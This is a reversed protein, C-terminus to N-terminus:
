SAGSKRRHIRSKGITNQNKGSNKLISSQAATGIQTNLKKKEIISLLKAKNKSDFVESM